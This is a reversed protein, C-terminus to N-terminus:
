CHDISKNLRKNRYYIRILGFISVILWIVEIIASPLNWYFYLSILIFVAGLANLLSYLSHAVTLQNIQLLFYATVILVVGAIGILNVAFLHPDTLPKRGNSKQAEVVMGAVTM